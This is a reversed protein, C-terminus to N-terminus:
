SLTFEISREAQSIIIQKKARQRVRGSTVSPAKEKADRDVEEGLRDIAVKDKM